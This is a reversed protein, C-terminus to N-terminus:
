MEEVLRDVEGKLRHLDFPKQLFSDRGLEEAQDILSQDVYGTMVIVKTSPSEAKAVRLVALGSMDPLKMDLILIHPQRTRLYQIGEAGTEATLVEFGEDQFYEKVQDLIESEDDVIVMCMMPM